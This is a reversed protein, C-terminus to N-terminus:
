KLYGKFRAWDLWAETTEKVNTGTWGPIGEISTHGTTVYVETIKPLVMWWAGGNEQMDKFILPYVEEGMEKLRDISEHVIYFHNNSHFYTDKKWKNVLRTFEQENIM